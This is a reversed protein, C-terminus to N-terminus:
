KGPPPNGRGFDMFFGFEFHVTGDKVLPGPPAPTVFPQAKQFAAVAAADLLPVGSSKAVQVDRLVGEADLTISLLVYRNTRAALAWQSGSRQITAQPNWKEYVAQRVGKYFDAFERHELDSAPSAVAQVPAEPHACGVATLLLLTGARLL